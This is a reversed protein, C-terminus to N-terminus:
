ISTYIEKAESALLNFMDNDIEINLVRSIVTTWGYIFYNFGDFINLEYKKEQNKAIDLFILDGRYNYEWLCGNYPFIVNKTIPAGPLDKGLGTANVVIANKNLSSVIEDNYKIGESLFYNTISKTDYRSLAIKASNIREYNNDIMFIKIVNSYNLSLIAHALAVGAGGCGLICIQINDKQEYKQSIWIDNFAAKVTIIDTAEGILCGNRKYICGIEKFEKASNILDDFLDYSASYIPIKHTTVLAGLLNQNTKIHEVYQRYVETRAGMPIDICELDINYNLLEMWRPFIKNIISQKTTVGIFCMKYQEANTKEEM